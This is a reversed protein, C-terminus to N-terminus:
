FVILPIEYKGQPSQYYAKENEASHDATIIFVTNKFWEQKSATIFFDKLADDTYGVTKHIPLTGEPYKGMENPPLSYPHHSSLTFITQYFPQKAERCQQAFYQLYPKDYIGWKGDFDNKNPYENLGFYTGAQSIAVMNDFSMTGNKGGHYFGSQYGWKQLYYATSFLTNSQYVSSIYDNDMLSPLAMISSPVGEISRKGNAYAHHYVWSHKM